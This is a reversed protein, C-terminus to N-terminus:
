WTTCPLSRIPKVAALVQRCPYLGTRQMPVAMLVLLSGTPWPRSVAPLSPRRSSYPRTRTCREATEGPWMLLAPLLVSEDLHGQRIDLHPQVNKFWPVLTGAEIKDNEVNNSDEDGRQLAAIDEELEDLDLERAITIMRTFANDIELKDIDQYHNTKHRADALEDFWTPLKTVNKKFDKRLLDKFGLAFGKLHHYDILTVPNDKNKRDRDWNEKQQPYLSGYFKGEWEGYELELQETIYERMAELFLGLAKHLQVTAEAM